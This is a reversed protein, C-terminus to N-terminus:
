ESQILSKVEERFVKKSGPMINLMAEGHDDEIRLLWLRDPGQLTLLGFDSKPEEGEPYEIRLIGGRFRTHLLDEALLDSMKETAGAACLKNVISDEEEIESFEEFENYPIRLEETRFPKQNDLEFFDIGGQLVKEVSGAYSLQHVVGWEISHKYFENDYFHYSLLYEGEEFSRRYQLTFEADVLVAITKEMNGSLEFELKDTMNIWGRALLSHAATHLKTDIEQPQMEGLHAEILFRGMENEGALSLVLALEEVSMRVKELSM